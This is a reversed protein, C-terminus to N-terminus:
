PACSRVRVCLVARRVVQTCRSRYLACGAGKGALGVQVPGVRGRDSGEGTESLTEGVM